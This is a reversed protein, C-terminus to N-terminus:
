NSKEHFCRYEFAIHTPTAELVYEGLFFMNFFSQIAHEFYSLWELKIPLM